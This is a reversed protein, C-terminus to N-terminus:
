ENPFASCFNAYHFLDLLVDPQRFRTAVEIDSSM